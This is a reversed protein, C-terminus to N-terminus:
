AAGEDSDEADYEPDGRTGKSGPPLHTTAHEGKRKRRPVYLDGNTDPKANRLFIRVKRIGAAALLVAAFLSQAALGRVRRKGPSGLAEKAEDKMFGHLGEQSQRLVNYTDTSEDTGFILDQAYRAANRKNQDTDTETVRLDISVSEQRCPKPWIGNTQTQPDPIVGNRLTRIGLTPGGIFLHDQSKPKLPCTSAPHSGSAPCGWRTTGSSNTGKFRARHAARATIRQDYEDKTITGARFDRTADILTQPISPCYWAGEIMLLGESSTQIGLHEDLIPLVLRWGAERAPTHFRDPDANAYIGDGALFRPHYNNWALNAMMRRAAGSPDAGPRDLHMVLPLAPLYQKDGLWDCVAVMLNLDYAYFAKKIQPEEGEVHDGTRVYFGADPDTSAVESDVSKGRSYIRLPTGDVAASGRYKQKIAVPLLNFPTQLISNCVISLAMMRDEIEDPTLTRDSQRLTEWPMSKGKPHISPDLVALLRRLADRVRKEIMWQQQRDENRDRPEPLPKLGLLRTSPPNLRRYLTNAIESCLAGKNDKATLLMGVVLAMYPLEVPRGGKKKRENIRHEIYPVVRSARIADYVATVTRDDLKSPHDDYIPHVGQLGDAGPGNMAARTGAAHLATVLAGVAPATFEQRLARGTKSPAPPPQRRPRSRSSGNTKKAPRKKKPRHGPSLSTM